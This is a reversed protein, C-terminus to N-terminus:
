TADILFGRRIWRVTAFIIGGIIWFAALPVLMMAWLIWSDKDEGMLFRLLKNPPMFLKDRWQMCREKAADFETAKNSQVGGPGYQQYARSFCVAFIENAQNNQSVMFYIPVAVLWLASIVVGIRQRWLMRAIYVPGAENMVLLIATFQV